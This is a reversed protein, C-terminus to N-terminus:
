FSFFIHIINTTKNKRSKLRLINPMCNTCINIITYCSWAVLKSHENIDDLLRGARPMSIKM